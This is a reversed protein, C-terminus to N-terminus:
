TYGPGQRQRVGLQGLHEEVLHQDGGPVRAVGDHDDDAKGHPEAGGEHHQHGHVDHLAVQVGEAEVPDLKLALEVGRGAIGERGEGEKGAIVHSCRTDHVQGSM